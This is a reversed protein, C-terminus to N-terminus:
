WCLSVAHAPLRHTEAQNRLVDLVV